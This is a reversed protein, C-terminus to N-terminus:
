LFRSRLTIALHNWTQDGFRNNHPQQQRRGNRASSRRLRCLLSAARVAVQIDSALVAMGHVSPLRDSRHRLEVMVLGLEGQAAQVFADVAYVTVCLHHERVDAILAGIAVSVNVASFQRTSAFVTVGDAAPFDRSRLDVEVHVPERESTSMGGRGAFITM